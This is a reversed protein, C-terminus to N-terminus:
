QKEKKEKKELRKIIRDERVAMTMIYISTFGMTISGLAFGILLMSADTFNM